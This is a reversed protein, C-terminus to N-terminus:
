LAEGELVASVLPNNKRNIKQKGGFIKPRRFNYIKGLGAREWDRECVRPAARSEWDVAAAV